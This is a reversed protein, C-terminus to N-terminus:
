PNGLRDRILKKENEWYNKTCCLHLHVYGFAPYQPVYFCHFAHTSLYQFGWFSPWYISNAACHPKGLIFAFFARQISLDHIESLRKVMVVFGYILSAFMGIRFIKKTIFAAPWDFQLCVFCISFPITLYVMTWLFAQCTKSYTGEGKLCKAALWIAYSSITGLLFALETFFVYFLGIGLLALPTLFRSFHFFDLSLTFLGAQIFCILMWLSAIRLQSLVREALYHIIREFKVLFGSNPKSHSM